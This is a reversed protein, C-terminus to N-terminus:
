GVLEVLGWKGWVMIGGGGDDGGGGGSTSGCRRKVMDGDNEM